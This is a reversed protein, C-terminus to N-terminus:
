GVVIKTTTKAIDAAIKKEGEDERLLIFEGDQRTETM